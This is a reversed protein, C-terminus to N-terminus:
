HLCETGTHSLLVTLQSPTPKLSHPPPKLSHPPPKLSHPTPKLSHLTPKLQSPTPKLSYLTLQSPIPKLSYPPPSHATLTHTNFNHVKYYYFICQNCQHSSCPGDFLHITLYMYIYVHWDVMGDGLYHVGDRLNHM